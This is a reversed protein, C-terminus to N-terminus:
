YVKLQYVLCLLTVVVTLEVVSTLLVLAYTMHLNASLMSTELNSISQCSILIYAYVKCICSDICEQIM